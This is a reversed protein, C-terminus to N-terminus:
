ADDEERVLLTLDRLGQVRVRAGRRAGAPAEARWLEGRVRVYGAPDLDEEAVGPAGLLREAGVMGATSDDYARRTLPYLIGEKAIWLAFLVWAFTASILDVGHLGLLVVAALLAGPMQYLAYRLWM